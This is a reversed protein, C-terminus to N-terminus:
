WELDIIRCDNFANNKDIREDNVITKRMDNAQIASGELDEIEVVQRIINEVVDQDNNLCIANEKVDDEQVPESYQCNFNKLFQEYWVSETVVGKFDSGNILLVSPIMVFYFFNTFTQFTLNIINNQHGLIHTGVVVTSFGLFEVFWALITIIINLITKRHRRSKSSKTLIDKLTIM